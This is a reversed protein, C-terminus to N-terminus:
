LLLAVKKSLKQLINGSLTPFKLVMLQTPRLTPPPELQFEIQTAIKEMNIPTGRGLRDM